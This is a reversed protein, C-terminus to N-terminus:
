TNHNHVDDPRPFAFGFIKTSKAQWPDCVGKFILQFTHYKEVSFTSVKHCRKGVITGIIKKFHMKTSKPSYKIGM